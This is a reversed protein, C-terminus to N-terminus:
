NNSDFKAILDADSLIRILSQRVFGESKAMLALSNPNDRWRGHAVKSRYSYGTRAEKFQRQAEERNNSLFLAMRQSLRFTMERGDDPGLLAELAIWFLLYRVEEMNMRLGAWTSRIATWIARNRSLGCLATLLNQAQAIDEATPHATVDDPHCLLPDHKEWQQVTWEGHRYPAHLLLTFGINSPRVLWLALNALVALEYKAAQISRQERGARNPDPDGLADADYEAISAYQVQSLGQLDPASLRQVMTDQRVWDPLPALTLGDAFDISGDMKPIFNNLPVITTWNPMSRVRDGNLKGLGRFDDSPREQTSRHPVIYTL